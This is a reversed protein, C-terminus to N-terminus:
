YRKETESWRSKSTPNSVVDASHRDFDTAPKDADFLGNVHPLSLTAWTSLFHSSQWINEPINFFLTKKLCCNPTKPTIQSWSFTCTFQATNITTTNLITHSFSDRKSAEFFFLVNM